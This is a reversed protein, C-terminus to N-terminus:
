YGLGPISEFTIKETIKLVGKSVFPKSKSGTVIGSPLMSTQM